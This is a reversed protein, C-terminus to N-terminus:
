MGKRRRRTPKTNTFLESQEILKQIKPKIRWEAFVNNVMDKQLVGLSVLNDACIKTTSTPLGILKSLQADRYGADPDQTYMKDIILELRTPACGRAVRKVAAFDSEDCERKGKILAIGMCLSTLQNVLRTPVETRAHYQIEKTYTDRIVSGRMRAVLQGCLIIKYAIDHPVAPSPGFDYNLFQECVDSLEQKIQQKLSEQVNRQSRAVLAAEEELSEPRHLNYLLFRTGLAAHHELYIEIEETTGALIGFRSKYVRLTGVGYRKEAQGDYADRLQGFITDRDRQNMTLLETLDKIALVKKDLKPLLSPDSGGPGPSGSILTKPTLGSLPYIRPSQAISMLIDSKGCGSPGSLLTWVPDTAYRNAVITGFAVDLPENSKLLLHKNFVDYVDTIPCGPGTLPAPESEQSQGANASDQQEPEPLAPPHIRCMAQLSKITRKANCKKLQYFDSVDFGDDYKALWHVYQINRVINCLLTHIKNMGATGAGARLKGTKDYKDFDNDFVVYVNRERFYQAWEAKFTGAGPMGIAIERTRKDATLAEHMSMTDWEGETIWVTKYDDTLRHMNIIAVNSGASNLLKKNKYIRVNVTEGSENYIPITYAGTFENYGVDFAELTHVQLGRLQALYELQKKTISEKCYKAIERLFIKYGGARQCTGSKCDWAKTDTNIYFKEAGCFPCRGHVQTDGSYGHEIFGHQEFIKLTNKKPM